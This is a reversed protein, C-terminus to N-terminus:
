NIAAKGGRTRRRLQLGLLGLGAAMMAWTEAEPVPVATIVHSYGGGVMGTAMGSVTVYYAGPALMASDSIYLGAGGFGAVMADGVDVMGVTGADMWLSVTMGAMDFLPMPTSDVLVSGLTASLTSPLGFGFFLNDTFAGVPTFNGGLAASPYTVDGYFYDTAGAAFPTALGAVLLATRLQKTM